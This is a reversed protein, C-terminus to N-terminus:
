LDEYYECGNVVVKLILSPSPPVISFSMNTTTNLIPVIAPGNPSAVLSYSMPVNLPSGSPGYYRMSYMGGGLSEIGNKYLTNIKATDKATYHTRQGMDVGSPLPMNTNITYRISSAPLALNGIRMPPQISFSFCKYHMISEYDYSNLPAAPLYYPLYIQSVFCDKYQPMINPTLVSIFPTRDKRQHEHYVGMTHTMEHVVSGFIPLADLEIMHPTANGKCSCGLPSSYSGLKKTFKVFCTEGPLRLRWYLHTKKNVYQIAQSITARESPSFNGGITDYPILNCDWIADASSPLSLTTIVQGNPNMMKSSVGSLTGLVVDGGYLVKGNVLEARFLTDDLFPLTHGSPLDVIIPTHFSDPRYVEIAALNQSSNQASLDTRTFLLVLVLMVCQLPLFYFTNKKM